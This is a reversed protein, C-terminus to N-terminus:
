EIPKPWDPSARDFKPFLMLSPLFSILMVVGISFPLVTRAAPSLGLAGAGLFSSVTSIATFFGVVVYYHLRFLVLLRSYRKSRISDEWTLIRQKMEANIKHELGWVFWSARRGRRVESLWLITVVFSVAPIVALLIPGLGPATIPDVARATYGLLVGIAAVGLGVITLRNRLTQRVEDVLRRYEELLLEVTVNQKM